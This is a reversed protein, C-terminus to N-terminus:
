RSGKACSRVVDVMMPDDMQTIGHLDGYQGVNWPDNATSTVPFGQIFVHHCLLSAQRSREKAVQAANSM